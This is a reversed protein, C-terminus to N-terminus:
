WALEAIALRPRLARRKSFSTFPQPTSNQAEAGAAHVEARHIGSTVFLTALSQAQAGKIDTHMADGVALVRALDLSERDLAQRLARAAEALARAYIPPYPKGAQIVRGASRRM